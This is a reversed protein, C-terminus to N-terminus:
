SQAALRRSMLHIMSVCIMPKARKLIVNLDKSHRRWRSLWAFTLEVIWRKALVVFGKVGVPRLVTQFVWGFTQQVREPLGNRGYASDAFIVKVRQFNKKAENARLVCWTIRALHAM